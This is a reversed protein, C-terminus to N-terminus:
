FRDFLPGVGVTPPPVRAWALGRVVVPLVKGRELIWSRSSYRKALGRLKAEGARVFRLSVIKRNSLFM